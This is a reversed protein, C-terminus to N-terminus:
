IFFKIISINIYYYNLLIYVMDAKFYSTESQPIPIKFSKDHRSITEVEQELSPIVSISM